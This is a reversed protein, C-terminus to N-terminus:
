GAWPPPRKALFAEIGEAAERGRLLAMLADASADLMPGLPQDAADLVLRKVAAIAGPAARLVNSLESTIAQDVEADRVLVDIMGLRHAAAADIVSATVAIRRVAAEPDVGRQRTAQERALAFAVDGSGTALDLVARPATHAVQRTLVRRWWVDAGGSLLRNALDYRRAIRGFMSNVAVPDPM